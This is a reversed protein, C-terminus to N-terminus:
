ESPPPSFHCFDREDLRASPTSRPLFRLMRGREIFLAVLDIGLQRVSLEAREFPKHHRNREADIIQDRPDAPRAAFADRILSNESIKFPFLKVEEEEFDPRLLDVIEAAQQDQRREGEEQDRGKKATDPTPVGARM